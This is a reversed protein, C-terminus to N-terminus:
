KEPLIMEARGLPECKSKNGAGRVEEFEKGPGPSLQEPELMEEAVPLVFYFPPIACCVSASKDRPGRRQNALVPGDSTKKRELSVSYGPQWPLGRRHSAVPVVWDM